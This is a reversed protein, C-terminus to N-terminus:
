FFDKYKYRKMSLHNSEPYMGLFLVVVYMKIGQYM